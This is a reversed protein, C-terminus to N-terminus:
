RKKVDGYLEFNCIHFCSCSNHTSGGGFSFGGSARAEMNNQSCGTCTLRFIRYFAGTDQVEFYATANPTISPNNIATHLAVFTVGDVSGELKWNYPRNCNGTHGLAYGSVKVLVSKLDCQVWKTLSSNCGGAEARSRGVLNGADSGVFTGTCIVQQIVHPNQWTASGEKTGLFHLVGKADDPSAFAFTHVDEEDDFQNNGVLGFFSLHKEMIFQMDKPMTPLEPLDEPGAAVKCLQHYSLIQRFCRPNVDLFIHNQTDRVMCSEWRGSFLAALRTDPFQTLTERLAVMRVGGVNLRLKDNPSVTAGGGHKKALEEKLVELHQRRQALEQHKGRMSEQMAVVVNVAESTRNACRHLDVDINEFMPKQAKSSSTDDHPDPQPETKISSGQNRWVSRAGESDAFEYVRRRKAGDEGAFLLVLFLLLRFVLCSFIVVIVLCACVCVLCSLVLSLCRLWSLFYFVGRGLLFLVLCHLCPLFSLVAFFLFALLFSLAVFVAFAFLSLAFFLLSLAFM